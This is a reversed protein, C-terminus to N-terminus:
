SVDALDLYLINVSQFHTVQRDIADNLQLLANNSMKSVIEISANQTNLENRKKIECRKSEISKLSSYFFFSHIMTTNNNRVCMSAM